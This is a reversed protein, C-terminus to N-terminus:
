HTTTHRAYWNLRREYRQVLSELYEIKHDLYRAQHGLANSIRLNGSQYVYQHTMNNIADFWIKNLPKCNYKKYETYCKMIENEM